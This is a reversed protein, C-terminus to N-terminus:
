PWFHSAVGKRRLGNMLEFSDKVTGTMGKGWWARMEYIWVHHEFYFHDVLKNVTDDELLQMALPVEVGSTDIDLKVIVLDDEDFQKLISYLPNMKDDKDASVGITHIHL